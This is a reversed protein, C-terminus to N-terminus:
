YAVSERRQKVAKHVRDFSDTSVGQSATRIDIRWGHQSRMEFHKSVLVPFYGRSYGLLIVTKSSEPLVCIANEMRAREGNSAAYLALAKCYPLVANM